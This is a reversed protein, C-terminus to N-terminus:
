NPVSRTSTAVVMCEGLRRSCIKRMEVDYVTYLAVSTNVCVDQAPMWYKPLHSWTRTMATSFFKLDGPHNNTAPNRQIDVFVYNFFVIYWYKIVRYSSWLFETTLLM